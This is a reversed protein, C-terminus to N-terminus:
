RHRRRRGAIVGTLVGATAVGAVKAWRHDSSPPEPLPPAERNLREHRRGRAAASVDLILPVALLTGPTAFWPNYVMGIGIFGIIAAAFFPAKSAPLQDRLPEPLLPLRSRWWAVAAVIELLVVVSAHLAIGFTSAGYILAVFVALANFAGWLAVVDPGKPKV